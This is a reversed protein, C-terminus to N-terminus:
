PRVPRSGDPDSYITWGLSFDDGHGEAYNYSQLRSNPQTSNRKLIEVGQDVNALKAVLFDRSRNHWNLHEAWLKIRLDLAYKRAGYYVQGDIISVNIESDHTMSRTGMNASGVTAFVDDVIVLKTHVKYASGHNALTYTHVKETNARKLRKLFLYRARQTSDSGADLNGDIIMVLHQIRHVASELERSLEEMYLYQDEIYIYKKARRIAKKLTAWITRDGNPAYVQTGAGFTRSTQVFVTNGEPSTPVARLHTPVAGPHNKYRDLFAKFLDSVAPGQVRVQVDHYRSAGTDHNPGDLRNPNIDMGGLYCVTGESNTVLVYKWHHSGVHAGLYAQLIIARSMSMLNPASVIADIAAGPMNFFHHTNLDLIAHGNNLGNIFDVVVNNKPYSFSNRIQAPLLHERFGCFDWILARIKAGYNDASELLKTLTSDPRGPLLEFTHDIWWGGILVHHSDSSIAKLDQVLRPFYSFGDVLTEVKNSETYLPLNFAPESFGPHTDHFWDSLNITGIINHAPASIGDIRLRDVAPTLKGLVHVAWFYLKRACNVWSTRM